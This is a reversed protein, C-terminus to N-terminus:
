FYHDRYHMEKLINNKLVETIIQHDLLYQHYANLKESCISYKSFHLFNKSDSDFSQGYKNVFMSPFVFVRPGEYVILDGDDSVIFASTGNHM